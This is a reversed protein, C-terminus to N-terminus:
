MNNKGSIIASRLAYARGLDELTVVGMLEGKEVVAFASRQNQQMKKYVESLSEDGSVSPTDRRVIKGLQIGLGHEHIASLIDDRTVVGVYTGDETVPIVGGCAGHFISEVIQALTTEAPIAACQTNMVNRVRLDKLIESVVVSQEESSAGLYVFFAIFILFPNVLLGGAGFLIAFGKGISAAVRTARAYNMRQALYARVVRGGDMPFAPLLNFLALLINIWGLYVPIYDWSTAIKEFSFDLITYGVIYDLGLVIFGIALSTLPGALAVKLEQRPESPMSEMNSVGGIPLLTVDRVKVGYKQAQRSHALEHLVVFVFLVSVLLAGRLAAELGYQYGFLAAYAVILMPFTIHMKLPIGFLTIIKYSWKM